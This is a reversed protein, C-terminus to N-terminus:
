KMLSKFMKDFESDLTERDLKYQEYAVILNNKTAENVCDTIPAVEVVEKTSSVGLFECIGQAIAEAYCEQAQENRMDSADEKNTMFGLEGLVAPMTTKRLVYVNQVKVGRDKEGCMKVVKDQIIKAAIEAQGGLGYILHETGRVNNWTYDASANKHFSYFLDADAANAITVRDELNMDIDIASNTTFVAVGNSTLKQAVKFMIPYNQEAEKIKSGNAYPPTEKGSTSMGHGADLVVKKKVESVKVEELKEKSYFILADVVARDENDNVMKNNICMTSSGGGDGMVANYLDLKIALNVTEQFTLLEEKNILEGGSYKRGNTVVMVITGDKRQGLFTRPSKSTAVQPKRLDIKGNYLLPCVGKIWSAGKYKTAYDIAKMDDIVLKNDIWIAEIWNDNDRPTGSWMGDEYSAGNRSGNSNFFSFNTKCISNYWPREKFWPHETNGVTTLKGMSRTALTGKTPETEFVHINNDIVYYKM